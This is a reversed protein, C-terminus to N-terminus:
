RCDGCRGGGVCHLEWTASGANNQRKTAQKVKQLTAYDEGLEDKQAQSMAAFEQMRCILECRLCLRGSKM